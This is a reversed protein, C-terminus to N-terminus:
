VEGSQVRQWVWGAVYLGVGKRQVESESSSQSLDEDEAVNDDQFLAPCLKDTHPNCVSKSRHGKFVEYYPQLAQEPVVPAM